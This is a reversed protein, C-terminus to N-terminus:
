AAEQSPFLPSMARPFELILKLGPRNDDLILRAQHHDAIAKVMSLGLGSGKTQRAGDGRYFRELVKEREAAPIGTGQDAILLRHQGPESNIALSIQGGPHSFKIANDLINCIAQKLLQEDAFLDARTGHFTISLGEKEALPAYLEVCSAVM